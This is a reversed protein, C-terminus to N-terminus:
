VSTTPHQRVSAGLGASSDVSTRIFPLGLTVVVVDSYAVLKAAVHGQLGTPCRTDDAVCRLRLPLRLAADAQDHYMAVVVDFEGRVARVFVTDASVPGSALVGPRAARLRSPPAM